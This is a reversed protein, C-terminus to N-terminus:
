NERGSLARLAILVFPIGAFAFVGAMVSGGKGASSVFALVGTFVALLLVGRVSSSM